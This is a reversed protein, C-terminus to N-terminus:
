ERAGSGISAPLQWYLTLSYCRSPVSLSHSNSRCYRVLAQMARLNSVHAEVHRGKPHDVILVHVTLTELVESM